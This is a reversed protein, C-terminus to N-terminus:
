LCLTEQSMGFSIYGEWVQSEDLGYQPLTSPCTRQPTDRCHQLHPCFRSLYDVKGIGLLQCQNKELCNVVHQIYDPAESLCALGTVPVASPVCGIAHM